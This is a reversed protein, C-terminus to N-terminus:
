LKDVKKKKFIGGFLGGILIGYITSITPSSTIPCAGTTCGIYKWYMYGGIAGLLIGLLYM